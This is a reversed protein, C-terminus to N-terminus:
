GIADLLVFDAWGSWRPRGPNNRDSVDPQPNTEEWDSDSDIDPDIPNEDDPTASLAVTRAAVM